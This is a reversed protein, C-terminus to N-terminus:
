DTTMFGSFNVTCLDTMSANATVHPVQDDWIFGDGISWNISNEVEGSINEQYHTFQGIEYPTAYIVARVMHGPENPFSTRLKHFTDTHLPIISGPPTVISSVTMVRFGLKKGVQDFDIQDKNWWLQHIRTNETCYTKPFASGDNYMKTAISSIENVRHDANAILSLDYDLHVKKLM